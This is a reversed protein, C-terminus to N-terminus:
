EPTECTIYRAEHDRLCIQYGMVEYVSPDGMPARRLRTVPAATAFGLSSLRQRVQDPCHDSFDRVTATAGVAVDSLPTM